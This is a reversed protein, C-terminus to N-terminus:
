KKNSPSAGKQTYPTSRYHAPMKTADDKKHPHMHIKQKGDETQAM